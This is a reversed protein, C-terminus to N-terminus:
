RLSEGRHETRPPLKDEIEDDNRAYHALPPAVEPLRDQPECVHKQCDNRLEYTARESRRSCSM